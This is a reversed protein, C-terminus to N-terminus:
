GRNHKDYAAIMDEPSDYVPASMDLKTRDYWGMREWIRMAQNPQEIKELMITAGACHQEKSSPICEGEDDFQTTKHCAFTSDENVMSDCIEAVRDTRLYPTVDTRFPCKPCPRILDFNM